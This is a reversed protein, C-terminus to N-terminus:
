PDESDSTLLRLGGVSSPQGHGSWLVLLSGGDASGQRLSRLHKRASHEDPNAVVEGGLSDPLLERVAEVDAVARPLASLSPVAYQGVGVGVFKGWEVRM